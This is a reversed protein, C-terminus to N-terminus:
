EWSRKVYSPKPKEDATHTVIEVRRLRKEMPPHLVHHPIEGATSRVGHGSRSVKRLYPTGHSRPRRTDPFSSATEPPAYMEGLELTATGSIYFTELSARGDIVFSGM